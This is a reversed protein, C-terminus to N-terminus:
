SPPTNNPTLPTWMLRQRLRKNIVPAIVQFGRLFSQRGANARSRYYICEEILCVNEELTGDQLDFNEPDYRYSEFLLVYSSEFMVLLVDLDERKMTVVHSDQLNHIRVVDEIDGNEDLRCYASREPVFHLGLLHAVKQSLEVYTRDDRHGDFKRLFVLQEGQELTKSRCDSLPPEIWMQKGSAADQNRICLRWSSCPNCSWRHLDGVDIPDLAHAPVAVGHMFCHILGAYLVVEERERMERLFGLFDGQEIWRSYAPTARDPQTAMEVPARITGDLM